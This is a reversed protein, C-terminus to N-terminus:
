QDRGVGEGHTDARHQKLTGPTRRLLDHAHGTGKCRALTVVRRRLRLQQADNKRQAFQPVVQGPTTESHIRIVLGQLVNELLSLEGVNEFSTKVLYKLKVKGNLVNWAHGIDM